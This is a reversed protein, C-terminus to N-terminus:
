ERSLWRPMSVFLSFDEFVPPDIFAGTGGPIRDEPLVSADNPAPADDCYQPLVKGSADTPVQFRVRFRACRIGNRDLWASPSALSGVPAPGGASASAGEDRFGELECVVPAISDPLTRLRDNMAATWGVWRLTGKRAFVLRPSEYSGSARFRDGFTPNAPVASDPRYVRHLSVQDVHRMEVDLYSDQGSDLRGWPPIFGAKYDLQPVGGQMVIQGNVQQYQISSEHIKQHVVTGNLTIRLAVRMKPMQDSLSPTLVDIAPVFKVVEIIKWEVLVHDSMGRGRGEQRDPLPINITFPPSLPGSPSKWARNTYVLSGGQSYAYTRMAPLNYRAILQYQYATTSGPLYACFLGVDQFYLGRAGPTASDAWQCGGTSVRLLPVAGQAYPFQNVWAEFGGELFCRPQLPNETYTWSQNVDNEDGVPSPVPIDIMTGDSNAFPMMPLPAPTRAADPIVAPVLNNEVFFGRDTATMLAKCFTGAPGGFPRVGSPPYMHLALLDGNTDDQPYQPTGTSGTTQGNSYAFLDDGATFLPTFPTPVNDTFPYVGTGRSHDSGNTMTPQAADLGEDPTFEWRIMPDVHFDADAEALTVGGGTELFGGIYGPDIEAKWFSKGPFVNPLSQTKEPSGFVGFSGLDRMTVGDAVAGIRRPRDPYLPSNKDRRCTLNEFDEQSSVTIGVGAWLDGEERRFVGGGLSSRCSGRSAIRFSRIPGLWFGKEHFWPTPNDFMTPENDYPEKGGYSVGTPPFEFIGLSASAHEEQYGNSLDQDRDVGRTGWSRPPFSFRDGSMQVVQGVLNSWSPNLFHMFFDAKKALFLSKERADANAPAPSNAWFGELVRRYLSDYDDVSGARRREVMGQVIPEVEEAFFTIVKGHKRDIRPDTEAPGSALVLAEAPLPTYTFFRSEASGLRYMWYANLLGAPIGQLDLRREPSDAQPDGLTLHPELIRWQDPSLAFPGSGLAQEVEAM